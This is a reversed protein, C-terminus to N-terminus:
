PQIASLYIDGIGTTTPIGVWSPLYYEIGSFAQSWNDQYDGIFNAKGTQSTYFNPNSQFTSVWGNSQLPNGSSDIHAMYLNYLLNNPDDRRDYFTVILNGTLDFDLAPMFQDNTQVDNIRVKTQWGASSKTTYYVDTRSSGQELEHWVISVKNAVGNFRAMPLTPARVGGNINGSTMNGQAGTEPASWTQGFDASRSLRIANLSYDVWIAYVYGSSPSVVIQPGQINGIAVSVPAGFTLGGDTSKAVLLQNVPYKIYAIYVYGLSGSHWSVGIAPKDLFYSSSSNSAVIAPQFWSVGGNDSRWVAIGNPPINTAGNFIIGSAYIRGPGQGSTYPNEALLPDGSWTYGAPIFLQGKYKTNFDTTTSFYNKAIGGVYKTYVTTTWVTGSKDISIVSPEVDQNSDETMNVTGIVSSATATQQISLDPYSQSLNEYSPVPLSKGVTAFYPVGSLYEVAGLNVQVPIQQSEPQPPFEAEIPPPLLSSDTTPPLLEPIPSAFSSVSVLLFVVLFFCVKKM